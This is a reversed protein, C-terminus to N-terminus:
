HRGKNPFKYKSRFLTAGSIIFPTIVMLRITNPIRKQRVTVNVKKSGIIWIPNITKNKIRELNV